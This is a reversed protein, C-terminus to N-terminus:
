VAAIKAAAADDGRLREILGGDRESYLSGNFTAVRLTGAVPTPAKTACGALAAVALALWAFLGGRKSGEFARMSGNGDTSDSWRDITESTTWRRIAMWGSAWTSM